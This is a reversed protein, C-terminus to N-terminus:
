WVNSDRYIGVSALGQGLGRVEITVMVIVIVRIWGRGMLM